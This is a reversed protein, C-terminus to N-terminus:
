LQEIYHIISDPLLGSLDQHKAIKSRIQTSSINVLPVKSFYVGKDDVQNSGVRPLVVLTAYDSLQEYKKWTDINDFSDAGMIFFIKDDPYDQQIQKLSDITYSASQRDIERTDISLDAFEQVALNLMDLRQKTNFRLESKHVPAACPMLFLNSLRLEKKIAIANKIHGFHIPDFSGGFFGIM